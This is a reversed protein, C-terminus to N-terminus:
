PTKKLAPVLGHKKIFRRHLGLFNKMRRYETFSFFRVQERPDTSRLAAPDCSAITLVGLFLEYVHKEKKGRRYTHTVRPMHDLIVFPIGRTNVGTEEWAERRATEEVSLEFPERKGGALQWPEWTGDKKRKRIAIVGNVGGFFVVASWDFIETM